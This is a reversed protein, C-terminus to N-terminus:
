ETSDYDFADNRVKVFFNRRIDLTDNIAGHHSQPDFILAVGDENKILKNNVISYGHSDLPVLINYFPCLIGDDSDSDNDYHIPVVSCPELINIALRELGKMSKAHAILDAAANELEEYYVYHADNHKHPIIIVSYWRISTGVNKEGVDVKFPEVDIKEFLEKALSVLKPIKQYDVYRKLDLIEPRM